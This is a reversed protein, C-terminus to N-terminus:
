VIRDVASANWARHAPGEPIGAATGDAAAAPPIDASGIRLHIVSRMLLLIGQEFPEPLFAQRSLLRLLRHRAEEVKGHLLLFQLVQLQVVPRLVRQNPHPEFLSM